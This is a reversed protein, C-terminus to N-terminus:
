QYEVTATTPLFTKITEGGRSTVHNQSMSLWILRCDDMLFRCLDLAGWDTIQNGNMHLEELNKVAEFTMSQDTLSNRSVSLSQLSSRPISLCLAAMGVDGVHNRDLNLRRLTVNNALGDAIASAGVASLSSDTLSLVELGTNHPLAVSLVQAIDDGYKCNKLYVRLIKSAPGFARQFFPLLSRRSLSDGSFWMSRILPNSAELVDTLLLLEEDGIFRGTLEISAIAGKSLDRMLQGLWYKQNRRLQPIRELSAQAESSIPNDQWGLKDLSSTHKGMAMALAYAGDDEINNRTLILEQLSLNYSLSEALAKAGECCIKNGTLDIYNLKANTKIMEALSLSGELGIDNWGLSLKEVASPRHENEALGDALMLAGIDGIENAELRIDKLTYNLKLANSLLSAGEVGLGNWGVHLGELRRDVVLLKTFAQLGAPGLNNCTLDLVRLNSQTSHHLTEALITAGRKMINNYSVDLVQLTSNAGLEAALTKMGKSGMNNDRLYLERLSTNDRIISAIAKAGRSGLETNTLNLIKIRSPSSETTLPDLLPSFGIATLPNGSLDLKSLTQQQSRVINSIDDGADSKLENRPLELSHLHMSSHYNVLLRHMPELDKVGIVEECRLEQTEPNNELYSLVHSGDVGDSRQFTAKLSEDNAFSSSLRRMSKLSGSSSRRPNGNSKMMSSGEPVSGVMSSYLSLM